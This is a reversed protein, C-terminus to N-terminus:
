ELMILIRLIGWMEALLVAGSPTIVQVLDYNELFDSFYMVLPLTSPVLPYFVARM